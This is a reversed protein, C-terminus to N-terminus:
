ELMSIYKMHSESLFRRFNNLKISHLYSFPYIVKQFALVTAGVILRPDSELVPISRKRLYMLKSMM